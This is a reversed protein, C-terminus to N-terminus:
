LRVIADKWIRLKDAFALGAHAPSTSPVYVAHINFHGFHRFYESEAKRGNLLIREINPYEALLGAIDNPFASIIKSDLSGKREASQCVDWLALNHALIFERRKNYDDVPECGFMAFILRWFSNHPNAYYQGLRLSEAGPLSGLILTRSKTDIIPAFSYKREPENM